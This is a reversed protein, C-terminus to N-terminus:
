LYRLLGALAEYLLQALERIFPTIEGGDAVTVVAVPDTLLLWLTAAALVGAVVAILGAASLLRGLWRELM